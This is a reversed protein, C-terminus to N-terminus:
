EYNRLNSLSVSNWIRKYSDAIKKLNNNLEINSKIADIGFKHYVLKKNLYKLVEKKVKKGAELSGLVITSGGTPYQQQRLVFFDIIDALIGYKFLRFSPEPLKEIDKHYYSHLKKWTGLRKNWIENERQTMKSIDDLNKIIESYFELSPKRFIEYLNDLINLGLKLKKILFPYQKLVQDDLEKILNVYEKNEIESLKKYNDSINEEIQKKFRNQFNIWMKLYPKSDERIEKGLVPNLYVYRWINYVKLIDKLKSDNLVIQKSKKNIVTYGSIDKKETPKVSTRYEVVIYQNNKIRIIPSCNAYEGQKKNNTIIKQFILGYSTNNYFTETTEYILKRKVIILFIIDILFVLIITDMLSTGLLFFSPIGLIILFIIFNLINMFFMSIIHFPAVVIVFLLSITKAVYKNLGIQKNDGM